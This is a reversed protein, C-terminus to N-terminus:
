IHELRKSCSEHAHDLVMSASRENCYAQCKICQLTEHLCVRVHCQTSKAPREEVKLSRPVAGEM